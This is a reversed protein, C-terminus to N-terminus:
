RRRMNRTKEAQTLGRAGRVMGNIIGAPLDQGIRGRVDVGARGTNHDKYGRPQLAHNNQGECFRDEEAEEEEASEYERQNEM